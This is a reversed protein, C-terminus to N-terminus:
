FKMYKKNLELITEINEEISQALESTIDKDRWKKIVDCCCEFLAPTTIKFNKSKGPINYIIKGYYKFETNINFERVAQTIYKKMLRNSENTWKEEWGDPVCKVYDEYVTYKSNVEPIIYYRKKLSSVDSIKKKQAESMNGRGWEYMTEDIPDDGPFWKHVTGDVKSRYFKCGKSGSICKTIIDRNRMAKTTGLSVNKREEESYVKGFKSERYKQRAYEYDISSITLKKTNENLFHLIRAKKAEYSEDSSKLLSGITTTTMIWLACALERSEPYIMVLLEHALYHERLTLKVLNDDTDKGGLSKPIIHHIEYYEGVSSRNNKAREILKDYINKYNM